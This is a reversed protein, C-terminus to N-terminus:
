KKTDLGLRLWKLYKVSNPTYGIPKSIDNGDADLIAYYPQANTKYRQQQLHAWKQGKYRYPKGTLPSIEQKDFPQRDDVHLSVLVVKNQLITLVEPSTWVNQEMKRCNVCAYGTFDLLIPKNVKKAYALGLNYDNFTLVNYPVSIHAGKPLDDTHTQAKSLGNPSESYELPPVFAGIAKLPAGFLGPLMYVVFVLSVMALIFRSVSLKELPQYDHPLRIKGLLYFGLLAFVVIWIAIFVERELWHAQLVLDANSLFKFALALELFGLVVKVTNLWGGSKPLSSMWGPFIAFLTFPLAIASSFGLMSVIPAIGGQSASQVLATGVIPGTCSFSVVALAMAMFFIGVLGGKDAKEDLKTGWSSPLVLEYAGLFSFSFFLLIVFFVVNFIVSTSLENLASPGFAAVVVTGLLVYITIIFVGYFVANRVGLAKSKSQKTFFSVTMPIMPFVCPTILATLGALFSLLFLMGYGKKKEDETTNITTAKSAITSKQISSLNYILDVEKPPLCMEDNCVMFEVLAKTSSQNEKLKIIQRFEAQHEFYKLKMEFTPDEVVVGESETTNGITKIEKSYFFTTPIPGGEEIFQSYLHWGEKITATSVLVVEEKENTELSTTWSVPDFVQATSTIFSFIILVRFLHITIKM